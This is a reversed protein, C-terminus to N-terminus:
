WVLYMHVFLRYKLSIRFNFYLAAKVGPDGCISHGRLYRITKFVVSLRSPSLTDYSLKALEINKSCLRAPMSVYLSIIM